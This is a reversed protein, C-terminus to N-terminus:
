LRYALPTSVPTSLLSVKLGLPVTVRASAAAMTARIALASCRSVRQPVNLGLTRAAHTPASQFLSLLTGTRCRNTIFGWAPFNSRLWSISSFIRWMIAPRRDSHDATRVSPLPWAVRKTCSAAWCPSGSRTYAQPPSPVRLSTTLPAAPCAWTATVWQGMPEPLSKRRMNPWSAARNQCSSCSSSPGCVAMSKISHM